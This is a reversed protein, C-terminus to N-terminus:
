IQVLFSFDEEHVQLSEDVYRLCFVMQETNALDTTEDVMITYWKGSIEQCIDHIIKLAMICLLENQIDPSLFKNQSKKMWKTLTPDEEAQIKLFQMFNSDLEGREDGDSKYKGRLALGQRGLVRITRLIYLLM